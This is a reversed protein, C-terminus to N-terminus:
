ARWKVTLTITTDGLGSSGATRDGRLRLKQGANFDIDTTIDVFDDQGAGSLTGVSGEDVGDVYLDIEYTNGNADETHGTVTVVTGDYPMIWGSDADTADGMSIWDNNRITNESYQYTPSEVSLTKSRVSDTFSLLSATGAPANFTSFGLGDIGLTTAVGDAINQGTMKRNAGGTGESKDHVLFEDTAAMEAGSATQGVIDLGVVTGTVDIGLLDEGTAASIGTLLGLDSIINNLSRYEAQNGNSADFFPITDTGTITTDSLGQRTVSITLADTTANFDVNVGAGGNITVVDNPSDAVISSDGSSNGGAQWTEFSPTSSLSGAVQGVTYYVNTNTSSDWVAIRDVTDVAASAPLNQIDLGLTPDGAVGDGDSIVLGDLNGAGEVTISRSAYTDPGTRVTFGNTTIGNVIDLDSLFDSVTIKNSTNPGAVRNFPLEDTTGISNVPLSEIFMSFENGILQLGAGDTFSTSESFQVWDIDDTNVALTGTGAVVWGTTAQTGGEVFTFNGASVESAPSGDQDTARTLTTAGGAGSNSVTYIGNQTADVQNKVLVRDGDNLQVGDITTISATNNVITDGVGGNDTFAWEGAGAGITLESLTAVQVSEKPDLGQAVSDVYDKNVADTGAVPADTITLDGGSAITIAAGSAVTLTGSDLTDGTNRLFSDNVSWEITGATDNYTVTTDTGNIGMAGLIDQVNETQDGIFTAPAIAEFEGATTNYQLIYDDPVTASPDDIAGLRGGQVGYHSDNANIRVKEGETVSLQTTDDRPDLVVLTGGAIAAQLDVSLALDTADLDRLDRTSSAVGEVTIGLDNLEVAGAGPKLVTFSM